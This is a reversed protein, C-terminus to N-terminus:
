EAPGREVPMYHWWPHQGPPLERPERQGTRTCAICIIDSDEVVLKWYERSRLPGRRRARRCPLCPHGSPLFLLRVHVPRGPAVRVQGARGHRKGVNHREGARHAALLVPGVRRAGDRAARGRHARAGAGGRIRGRARGGSRVADDNRTQRRGPRSRTGGARLAGERAASFARSWFFVGPQSLASHRRRLREQDEADGPQAERQGHEGSFFFLFFVDYRMSRM